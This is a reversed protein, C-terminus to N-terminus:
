KQIIRVTADMFMFYGLLPPVILILHYPIDPLWMRSVINLVIGVLAAGGSIILLPKNFFRMMYKMYFAFVLLPVAGIIHPISAHLGVQYADVLHNTLLYIGWHATLLFMIFLNKEKKCYAKLILILLGAEVITLVIGVFMISLALPATISM